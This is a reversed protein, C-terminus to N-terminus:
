SELSESSHGRNRGRDPFQSGALRAACGFFFHNLYSIKHQTYKVVLVVVFCFLLLWLLWFVKFVFAPKYLYKNYFHSLHLLIEGKM